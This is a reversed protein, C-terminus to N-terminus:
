RKEPADTTGENKRWKRTFFLAPIAFLFTLGSIGAGVYALPSRFVFRVTHTGQPLLVAKFAEDARYVCTEEGDLYAKWGPYYADLHVLLRPEPLEFVTLAVSNPSRETIRIKRDEDSTDSALVIRGFNLNGDEEQMVACLR